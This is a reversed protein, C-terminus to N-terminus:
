RKVPLGVLHDLDDIAEKVLTELWNATLWGVVLALLAIAIFAFPAKSLVGWEGVLYDILKGIWAM